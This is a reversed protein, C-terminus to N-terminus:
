SSVVEEVTKVADTVDELVEEASSVADKVDAVIENLKCVGDSCSGEQCETHCDPHLPQRPSMPYDREFGDEESEDDYELSKMLRDRNVDDDPQCFFVFDEIADRLRDRDMQFMHGDKIMGCIVHKMDDIGGVVHKGDEIYSAITQHLEGETVIKIDKM